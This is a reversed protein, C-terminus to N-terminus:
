AEEGAAKLAAAKERREQLEKAIMDRKKGNLDYFFIPIMQGLVFIAPIITYIMLFRNLTTQSQTAYAINANTSTVYGAWVVLAPGFSKTLAAAVKSFFGFGAYCLEEQRKGTKWEIEDVCDAIMVNPTLNTNGHQLGVFFNIILFPITLEKPVFGIVKSVLFLVTLSLAGYLCCVIYVKKTDLMKLLKKVILMGVATGIGMPLLLAIKLDKSGLLYVAIYLSVTSYVGRGFGTFKTLSVMLLNKNTFVFKLSEKLSVKEETYPVRERNNPFFIMTFLVCGLACVAMGGSQGIAKFISAISIADGREEPNPTCCAGFCGAPSEVACAAATYLSYIIFMWAVALKYNGTKPAIFVLMAVIAMPIVGFGIWPRIKGWKTRTRDVLYGIVLECVAGVIGAFGFVYALMKTISAPDIGSGKFAFDNFFTYTYDPMWGTLLSVGFLGIGFTWIESKRMYRKM